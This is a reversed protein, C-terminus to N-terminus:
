CSKGEISRVMYERMVGEKEYAVAHIAELVDMSFQLWDFTPSFVDGYKKYFCTHRTEFLLVLRQSLPDESVVGDTVVVHDTGNLMYVPMDAVTLLALSRAFLSTASRVDAEKVEKVVGAKIFAGGVLALKAFIADRRLMKESIHKDAITGYRDLFAKHKARLADSIVVQNENM